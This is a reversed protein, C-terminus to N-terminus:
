KLEGLLVKAEKLDPTDFGETFWEYVPTLLDRAEARRGNEAWLRALITAARLEYSKGKQRRAIEIARRFEAEALATDGSGGALAKVEAGGLHAWAALRPLGPRGM